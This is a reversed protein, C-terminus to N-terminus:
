RGIIELNSKTARTYVVVLKIPIGRKGVDKLM